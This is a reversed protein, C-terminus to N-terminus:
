RIMGQGSVCVFICQPDSTFILLAAALGVNNTKKGIGWTEYDPYM